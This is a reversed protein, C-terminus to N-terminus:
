HWFGWLLHERLYALLNGPYYLMPWVDPFYRYMRWCYFVLLLILTILTMGNLIRYSKGLLYRNVGYAALLALVVYIFPHLEWALAFHGRLVSIGARTMGCAPCPLGTIMVLPCSSYLFHSVITFYLAICLIALKANKIDSWLLEMAKQIRKKM